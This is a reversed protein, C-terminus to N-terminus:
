KIIKLDEVLQYYQLLSVVNEDKVQHNKDLPKILTLVEKLKIKTTEDTVTNSLEKLESKIKSSKSDIFERLRSMNASNNIYEKLVGKQDNNLTSYKENFKDLLIKYTLIRTGKDMGSYEELIRDSVGEKDISKSSIHELITIRNDILDAPNTFESSSRSEILNSISALQTYNPIKAKFFEDLNYHEKIEKIINYKDKRLVTKNLRTSAELVVNVLTEAKVENMAKANILAQYLRHEKALETKAFYKKIINASPSDKGAFLDSTIQRVLLEYLIGTNKYKSHKIM